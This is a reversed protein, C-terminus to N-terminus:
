NKFRESWVLDALLVVVSSYYGNSTTIRPLDQRSLTRDGLARRILTLVAKHEISAAYGAEAGTPIDIWARDSNSWYRECDRLSRHSRGAWILYLPIRMSDYSFRTSPETPKLSPWSVWDPVLQQKNDGARDLINIGTKQVAQWVPSPDAVAFAELAPWVWYSPNITMSSRVPGRNTFGNVGPIIVTGEDTNKILHARISRVIGKGLDSYSSDWTEGARLLAWAILIDGDSANNADLKRGDQTKWSFLGDSRSMETRTRSWIEDFSRRDGNHVALLMGYGQGESHTINQYDDVVRGDRIHAETFCSWNGACAHSAATSSCFLFTAVIATRLAPYLIKLM